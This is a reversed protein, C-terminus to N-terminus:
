YVKSAIAGSREALKLTIGQLMHQRQRADAGRGIKMGIPKELRYMSGMFADFRCLISSSIQLVTYGKNELISMRLTSDERGRVNVGGCYEVIVKQDAWVFDCELYPRRLAWQERESLQICANMSFHPMQLGGRLSPMCMNMGLAIEFPSRAREIAFGLAKELRKIGKPVRNNLKRIRKCFEAIDSIDVIPQREILGRDLMPVNEYAYCSCLESVDFVLEEFSISQMRALLLLCFGPSPIFVHPLMCLISQSPVRADVVVCRLKKTRRRCNLAGVIATYEDCHLGLEYLEERTGACIRAPTTLITKQDLTPIPNHLLENARQPLELVDEDGLIPPHGSRMYVDLAEKPGLIM